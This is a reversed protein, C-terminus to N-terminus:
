ADTESIFAKCMGASEEPIEIMPAHGVEDIVVTRSGPILRKFIAANEVAIVRDERGWLILTPAQVKKLEEQFVYRHNERIDAFIKENIARNAVAKEALVSTIPWPIFPKKELAFDMLADFDDATNVILPNKGDRLQRHLESEYEYIGGPSMLIVAGLQEPYTAAYLSSIAGGMSNGAMHFKGIGMQGLIDHLYRVQDDIDYSLAVDKSSEGHGPLDIAVVRYVDSLHAAFRIWNEKNAAFGHVLVLTGKEEAPTSELLAISMGNVEIQRVTLGAKDREHELAWNYLKHKTSSCASLMVAVLVTLVALLRKRAITTM